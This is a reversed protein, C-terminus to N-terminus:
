ARGARGAARGGALRGRHGGISSRCRSATPAPSSRRTWSGSCRPRASCRSWCPAPAASRRRAAAARAAVAIVAMLASPVALVLLAGVLVARPGAAATPAAPSRRAWSGASGSGPWCTATAPRASARPQRTLLLLLVTQMGYVVSCVVDAGVLRVAVPHARLARAGLVVDAVIGSGSAPAARGSPSRRGPSRRPRRPRLARVHRRQGPVRHEAPRAAPAVAGVVPGAAVAGMGVVARARTPAPCTPTPSSARPRPPPARRTPRRPPRPWGPWCPRSSSPCGPWRSPPWARADPRRPRPRLRGHDPPPRVPRRDRRRAPRARRDARRPRRDDRRALRRQAHARLRLRAARRQLALGGGALRRARGAAPPLLRHRLASRMTGPAASM